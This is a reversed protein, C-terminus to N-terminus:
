HSYHGSIHTSHTNRTQTRAHTCTYTLGSTSAPHTDKNASHTLNEWKVPSVPGHPEPIWRDVHVHYGRCEGLTYWEVVHAPSGFEPGWRLAPMKGVSSDGWNRLARKVSLVKRSRQIEMRWVTEPLCVSASLIETM